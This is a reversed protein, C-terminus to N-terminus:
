IGEVVLTTLNNRTLTTSNQRTRPTTRRLKRRADIQSVMAIRDRRYSKVPATLVTNRVSNGERLEYGTILNPTVDTVAVVRRVPHTHKGQYWFRAIPQNRVLPYFNNSM